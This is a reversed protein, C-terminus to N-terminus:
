RWLWKGLLAKKMKKISQIGLGGLAIPNYVVEWKVLHFIKKDITDNWLFSHQIKGLRQVM